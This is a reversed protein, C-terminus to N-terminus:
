RISGNIHSEGFPVPALPIAYCGWLARVGVRHLKARQWFGRPPIIAM